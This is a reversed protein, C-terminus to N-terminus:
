RPKEPRSGSIVRAAYSSAISHDARSPCRLEAQLAVNMEAGVVLQDAQVVQVTSRVATPGTRGRAVAPRARLPEVEPRPPPGIRGGLLTFEDGQGSSISCRRALGPGRCAPRGPSRSWAGWEARPRHHLVPRPSAPRREAPSSAPARYPQDREDTPAPAAAGGPQRRQGADQKDLASPARHLPPSGAPIRITPGSTLQEFGIRPEDGPAACPLSTATHVTLSGSSMRTRDRGRHRSTM